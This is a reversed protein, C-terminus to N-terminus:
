FAPDPYEWGEWSLEIKGVGGKWWEEELGKNIGEVSVAGISEISEDVEVFKTKM